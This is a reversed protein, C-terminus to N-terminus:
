VQAWSLNYECIFRSWIGRSSELSLFLLTTCRVSVSVSDDVWCEVMGFVNLSGLKEIGQLRRCYFEFKLIVLGIWGPHYERWHLMISGWLFCYFASPLPFRSWVLVLHFQLRLEAIRHSKWGEEGTGAFRHNQRHHQRHRHGFRWTSVSVAPVAKKGECNSSGPGMLGAALLAVCFEFCWGLPAFRARYIGCVVSFSFTIRYTISNSM